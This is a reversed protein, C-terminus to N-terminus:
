LHIFSAAQKTINRACLAPGFFTQSELKLQCKKEVYLESTKIMILVYNPRLSRTINQHLVLQTLM